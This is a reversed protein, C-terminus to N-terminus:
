LRAGAYREAAVSGCLSAWECGTCASRVRKAAFADRLATLAAADLVLRAGPRITLGLLGGVEESAAHDRARVSDRHCHAEEGGLLPACIDDPGTVIEIEEGAGIRAIVEAMNATFAPSYGRGVHTLVCLLHHPRLRVTM